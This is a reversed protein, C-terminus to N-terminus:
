LPPCCVPLPFFIVVHYSTLYVSSSSKNMYFECPETKIRHKLDATSPLPSLLPLELKPSGTTKGLSLLDHLAYMDTLELQWHYFLESGTISVRLVDAFIQNIHLKLKLKDACHLWTVIFSCANHQGNFLIDSNVYEIQLIDCLSHSSLIRRQRLIKWEVPPFYSLAFTM